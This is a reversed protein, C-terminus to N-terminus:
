EALAGPPPQFPSPPAHLELKDDIDAFEIPVAEAWGQGECLAAALERTRAEIRALQAGILRKPGVVKSKAFATAHRVERADDPPVLVVRRHWTNDNHAFVKDRLGILEKHLRQLDPDDFQGWQEGVELTARKFPRAYANAGAEWLSWARESDPEKGASDIL